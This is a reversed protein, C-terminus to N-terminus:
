EIWRPLTCRPLTTKKVVPPIKITDKFEERRANTTANTANTTTNTNTDLNDAPNVNIIREKKKKKKGYKGYKKHVKVQQQISDCISSTSTIAVKNKSTNNFFLL